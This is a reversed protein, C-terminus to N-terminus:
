EDLADRRALRGDFQAAPGDQERLIPHELVISMLDQSIHWYHTIRPLANSLLPLREEPSVYPRSTKVKM